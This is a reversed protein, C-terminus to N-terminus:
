KQLTSKLCHHQLETWTENIYLHYYAFNNLKVQGYFSLYLFFIFLHLLLAGWIMCSQWVGGNGRHWCESGIDSYKFIMTSNNINKDENSQLHLFALHFILHNNSFYKSISSYSTQSRNWFHPHPFPVPSFHLPNSIHIPSCQKCTVM